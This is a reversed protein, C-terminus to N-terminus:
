AGGETARYAIAIIELGSRGTVYVRTGDPSLVLSDAVSDGTKTHYRRVWARDGSSTDYAITAYDTGSQGTVYLQAGGPAFAVARASGVSGVGLGQDPGRYLRVWLRKGTTAEYVITAYSGPSTHYPGSNTEGTVAVRKGDPSVAVAHASDYGGASGKYRRQWLTKGTAADYALTIFDLDPPSRVTTGSVFVITGDPSVALADDVRGGNTNLSYRRQWLQDGTAADYAVTIYEGAIYDWGSVFLRTGDPSLTLTVNITWISGHGSHVSVWEMAGTAASYAITTFRFAYHEGHRDFLENTGTVFVRTGDPSLAISYAVNGGSRPDAYHAVWLEAGTAADYAVTAYLFGDNSWGTVFVRTGDPSVVVGAASSWLPADLRSSWLQAGTSPDYAVTAYVLGVGPINSTGVVFLRRGDPSAAERAPFGWGLWGTGPGPYRALWLEQGGTISRKGGAASRNSAAHRGVGASAVGVVAFVVLVLLVAFRKM